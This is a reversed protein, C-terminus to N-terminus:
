PEDEGLATRLAASIAPDDFTRVRDLLVHATNREELLTLTQHLPLASQFGPPYYGRFGEIGLRPAGDFWSLLVRELRPPLDYGRLIEADIQLITRATPVHEAERVLDMIRTVDLRRLSPVPLSSLLGGQVHRKGAREAVWANAVPGNLVAALVLLPWEDYDLPWVGHLGQYAWLGELDAAATLCWHGRSRRAANVLVKPTEWAFNASRRIERHNTCMWVRDLVQYPGLGDSSHVGLSMGDRSRPSILEEGGAGLCTVYEIGRHVTAVEDLRPAAALFDWVRQLESVLLRDDEACTAAVQEESWRLVVPTHSLDGAESPTVRAARLRTGNEQSRGRAIILATEADSHAFVNDPLLVVDVERYFSRLMRRLHRYGRPSDVVVRPVVFGLLPPGVEVVRRLLEGAKGPLQPAYRERDRGSFEEYPPNALVAGVGDLASALTAPEFVDGQRLDWGNPCPYDALTLVLRCVELAFPDLEVGRLRRILQGHRQSLDGAMERLRGLAALLFPGFGACLEVVVDQGAPLDHLPLGAVMMEAVARPTGHVGLKRRTEARVLTNEYVFALTDVSLNQFHLGRAIQEWAVCAVEPDTSPIRPFEGKTGGSASIGFHRGSVLLADSASTILSTVSEHKRDTLIKAAVLWLVFRVLDPFRGKRQLDPSRAVASDLVDCLLRDLRVNVEREILPYLGIDAFNMQLPGVPGLAGSRLVAAPSWDEPRTQVVRGLDGRPVSAEFRARKTRGFSWVAARQPGVTVVRRAGLAAVDDPGQGAEEPDADVVQLAVCASRYSPPLESFAALAVTRVTPSAGLYDAYDYRELM